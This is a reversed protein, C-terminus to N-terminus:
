TLDGFASYLAAAAFLLGVWPVWVAVRFPAEPERRKQAILAANVLMFVGLLVGSTVKALAVIPLAVAGLIVVGGVLVTALVPTRFRPHAHSFPALVRSRRGLGFLVRSAMVIQALVGNVAAFVAIASLFSSSTGRSHEWVLALPQESAGLVDAPVSRVAAYSVLAYLSAAIFLSLLIARPMTKEPNRVEEAMNVLDEFGIFAFFCLAIASTIGIWDPVAGAAFSEIAPVSFGAWIVLILGGVEILTFIAVLAMSELVGIVAVATLTLGLGITLAVRGVPWIVLLYGIGGRLVTAASIMGAVVIALGIVIALWRRQFGAEVYAAEGAAEPLRASFEAYSLASPLAVLGALLFALPAWIGAAGAVAGVVVYIGAGVIVGVGYATLLGLGIRRKLTPEM